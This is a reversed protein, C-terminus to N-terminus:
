LVYIFGNIISHTNNNNNSGYIHHKTLLRTTINNQCILDFSVLRKEITYYSHTNNNNNNGYIHHERYKKQQSTLRDSTHGFNYVLRLIH